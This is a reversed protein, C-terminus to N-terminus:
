EKGLETCCSLVKDIPKEFIEWKALVRPSRTISIIYRGNIVSRPVLWVHQPNLDSRNDFALFLFYDPVDNHKINFQWRDCTKTMNVLCSSKVDIKFGKGCIFDYGPNNIPMRVINDFFKSLAREAIHVGLYSSCRKSETYPHALGLRHRRERQYKNFYDKNADRRKRMREANCARCSSHFLGSAYKYFESIPRNEHCRSCKKTEM